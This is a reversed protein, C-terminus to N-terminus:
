IRAESTLESMFQEFTEYAQEFALTDEASQPYLDVKKFYGLMEDRPKLFSFQKMLELYFASMRLTDTMYQMPKKDYYDSDPDDHNVMPLVIEFPCIHLKECVELMKTVNNDLRGLTKKSFTDTFNPIDFMDDDFHHDLGTDVLQQIFTIVEARDTISRRLRLLQKLILRQDNNFTLRM